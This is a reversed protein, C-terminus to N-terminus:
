MLARLRRVRPEMYGLLGPSESVEYEEIQTPDISWKRAIAFVHHERPHKRKSYYSILAVWDEPIVKEVQAGKESQDFDLELEREEETLEGRDWLTGGREGLYAYARILRGWEAKAWAYYEVVRHNGFYQAAGQTESLRVILDLTDDDSADPLNGGVCLTWGSVPPSIFVANDFSEKLGEDWDCSRVDQLRLEAALSEQTTATTNV